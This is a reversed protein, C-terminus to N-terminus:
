WCSTVPRGSSSSSEPAFGNVRSSAAPTSAFRSSSSPSIARWACPQDSSRIAGSSRFMM